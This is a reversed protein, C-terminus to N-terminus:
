RSGELSQRLEDLTQIECLDVSQEGLFEQLREDFLIAQEGIAELPSSSFGMLDPFQLEQFLAALESYSNFDRHGVGETTQNLTLTIDQQLFLAQANAALADGRECAALLKGVIDKM